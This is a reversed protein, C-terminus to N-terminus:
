MASPLYNSCVILSIVSSPAESSFEPSISEVKDIVSTTLADINGDQLCKHVHNGVFSRGHYAQRHVNIKQLTEDLVKVLQGNANIKKDLDDVTNEFMNYFRLYIGLDLHLSPVCVQTIPINFIVENIVNNYHKANSLKGHGTTMFENHDKSLGQLSRPQSFRQKRPQQSDEQTVLCWLCFHRGSAGSLGYMKGLYEYDGFSFLRFTKGKWTLSELNQLQERYRSLATM